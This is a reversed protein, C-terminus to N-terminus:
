SQWQKSLYAKFRGDWDCIDSYRGGKLKYTVRPINCFLKM